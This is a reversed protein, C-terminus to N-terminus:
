RNPVGLANWNKDVQKDVAEAKERLTKLEEFCGDYRLNGYFVERHLKYYDNWYNQNTDIKM